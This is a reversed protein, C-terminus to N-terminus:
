ASSMASVASACAVASLVGPERSLRGADSLIGGRLAKGRRREARAARGAGEGNLGVPLDRVEAFSNAARLPAFGDKEEPWVLWYAGTIPVATELIPALRGESIEIQALYDPLRAAGLGSIAAQIMM